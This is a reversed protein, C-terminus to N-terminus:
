RSTVPVLAPEAVRVATEKLLLTVRAIPVFGQEELRRDLPSEYTRVASVLGHDSRQNRPGIIGMGFRILASPDHEPRSLVRLYHPQEAKAVGVQLFALARADAAPSELQIFAEVDAFRLIPTLASRPVRWHSGQQEWDNLRYAELRSVPVPTVSRYLQDLRLADLPVSPRINSAAAEDATMAPPLPQDSPRYLIVEEGYRAFGAQMFLDVNGGRDSCAVHYRATGSKSGDKMLHQVLRFRVDGAGPRDLSDLEVVTSESRRADHEVRALGHVRGREEYVYLRDHPQFAGLPLRFLSFFGIHGSSVPLGLSRVHVGDDPGASGDVDTLHSRRSLDGLAALDTLRASRVRGSRAAGRTSPTM